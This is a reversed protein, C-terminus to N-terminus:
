YRKQYVVTDTDIFMSVVKILLVSFMSFPSTLFMLIDGVLIKGERIYNMHIVFAGFVYLLIILYMM